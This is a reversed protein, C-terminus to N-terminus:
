GETPPFWQYLMFYVIVGTVSVYLWIPFTWRAIRRHKDFQQRAARYLTILVMPLNVAALVVHTLLTVFYVYRVVGTHTFRTSGHLAHYTLYSALFIASVVFAAVMVVRHADIKRKRILVYGILLLVTCTGNLAANVAPLDDPFTM